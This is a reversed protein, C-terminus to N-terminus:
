ERVSISHGVLRGGLLSCPIISSLWVIHYWVPYSSWIYVHLILSCLFLALGFNLPVNKIDKGHKTLIWTTLVTILSGTALRLLLMLLTYSRDNSAIVYAPWTLRAISNALKELILFICLGIIINFSIRILRSLM